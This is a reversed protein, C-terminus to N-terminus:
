RPRRTAREIAVSSLLQLLPTAVLTAGMLADPGEASQVGRFVGWGLAGVGASALAAPALRGRRRGALYVGLPLLISEGVFAGDLASAAYGDLCGDQHDCPALVARLAGGLVGGALVGVGGAALGGGVLHATPPEAVPASVEWLPGPSPAPHLFPSEPRRQAELGCSSALWLLAALVPATRM